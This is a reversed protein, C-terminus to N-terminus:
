LQAEFHKNGPELHVGYWKDRRRVADDFAALCLNIYTALIFDPTNSNNEGSYRNILESLEQEFDSM